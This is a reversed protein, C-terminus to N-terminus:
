TTPAIENGDTISALDNDNVEDGTPCLKALALDSLREPDHEGLRFQDVILLAAERRIEEARDVNSPLRDLVRDYACAMLRVSDSEERSESPLM